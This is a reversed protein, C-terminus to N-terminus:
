NTTTSGYAVHVTLQAGNVSVLLQDGNTVNFKPRNAAYFPGFHFDVETPTFKTVVLDICDTEGTQSRGASWSAAPLDVYLSTGYDYGSDGAVAPCGNLGAPHGTPSPAPKSGLNTGRVVFAPNSASGETRVSTITGGGSSGTTARLKFTYTKRIPASGTRTISSVIQVTARGTLSRLAALGAATFHPRLTVPNSGVTQHTTFLAITRAATALPRRIGMGGTTAKFGTLTGSSDYIEHGNAPVGSSPVTTAPQGGGGTLGKLLNTLQKDAQDLWWQVGDGFAAVVTVKVAAEYHSFGTDPPSPQGQVATTGGTQVGTIMNIVGRTSYSNNGTADWGFWGRCNGTVPQTWYQDMLMPTPTELFWRVTDSANLVFLGFSLPATKYYAQNLNFPLVCSDFAANNPLQSTILGHMSGQLVCSPQVPFVGSCAFYFGISENDYELGGGNSSGPPSYRHAVMTGGYEVTFRKFALARATTASGAATASAGGLDLALVLLVGLGLAAGVVSGILRRVLM